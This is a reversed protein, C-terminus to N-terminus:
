KRNIYLKPTTQKKNNHITKIYIVKLNFFVKKGKDLRHFDVFIFIIRWHKPFLSTFESM